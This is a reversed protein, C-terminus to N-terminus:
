IIYTCKTKSSEGSYYFDLANNQRYCTYSIIKKICYRKVFKYKSTINYYCPNVNYSLCTFAYYTIITYHHYLFSFFINKCNCFYKNLTVNLEITISHSDSTGSNM